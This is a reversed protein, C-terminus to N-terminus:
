RPVQSTRLKFDQFLEQAGEDNCAASNRGVNATLYAPIRGGKLPVVPTKSSHAVGILEQPHGLSGIRSGDLARVALQRLLQMGVGVLLVRFGGGFEGFQISRIFDEAILILAFGIVTAFNIGFALGAELAKGARTRLGAAKVAVAKLGEGPAVIAKLAAAAAPRAAGASAATEFVDQLIHEAPPSRPRRPPRPALMSNSGSSKPEGRPASMEASSVIVKGSATLPALM